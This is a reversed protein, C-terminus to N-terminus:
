YILAKLYDSSVLQHFLVRKGNAFLLEMCPQGTQVQLETFAAPKQDNNRKFRKFWYHFSHYTIAHDQCYQKQSIGSQKWHEIHAFMDKEIKDRNQM